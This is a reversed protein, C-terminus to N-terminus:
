IKERDEVLLRLRTLERDIKRSRSVLLLVYCMVILWAASFGYFMFHLNTIDIGPM